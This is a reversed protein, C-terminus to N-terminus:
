MQKIKQLIKFKIINLDEDDWMSRIAPEAGVSQSNDVVLAQAVRLLDGIPNAFPDIRQLDREIKKNELEDKIKDTKIKEKRAIVDLRKLRIDLIDKKIQLQVDKPNKLENKM